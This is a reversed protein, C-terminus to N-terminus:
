GNLEMVGPQHWDTPSVREILRNDIPWDISRSVSCFCRRPWVWVKTYTPPFYTQDKAIAEEWLAQQVLHYLPQPQEM